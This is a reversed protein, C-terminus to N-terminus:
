RISGSEKVESGIYCDCTDSPYDYTFSEYSNDFCYNMCTTKASEISYGYAMLALMLFVIVGLVIAATRWGSSVKSAM